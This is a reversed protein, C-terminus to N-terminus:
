VALVADMLTKTYACQPHALIQHASGREEVHGRHMVLLSSCLSSVAAIDHSVFLVAMREREAVHRILSLIQAEVSVDLASTVEDCLLIRPKVALARLIAARQCQGGSLENPRRDLLAPDLEVAQCLARILEKDAYGRLRRMNEQVSKYLPRGPLFSSVPDQFVMQLAARQAPTRQLSLPEGDLFLCGEDPAELGSLLKLLTTKGCGSEGVVGLIEGPRMYLSVDCLAKHSLSARRYTKSLKEADLIHNM